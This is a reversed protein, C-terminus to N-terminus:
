KETTIKTLTISGSPNKVIKYGKNKIAKLYQATTTSNDVSATVSMPKKASLPNLQRELRIISNSYLTIIEAVTLKKNSEIRNTTHLKSKSILHSAYYDNIIKKSFQTPKVIYGYEYDAYNDFDKDSPGVDELSKVSEVYKSVM